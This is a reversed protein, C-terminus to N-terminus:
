SANLALMQVTEINETGGVNTCTTGGTITVPKGSLVAAQALSLLARGKSTSFDFAYATVQLSNHCGPRPNPIGDTLLVAVNTGQVRVATIKGSHSSAKAVGAGAVAALAFACVVGLLKHQRKM